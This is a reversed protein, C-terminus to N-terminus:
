KAGKCWPFSSPQVAALMSISTLSAYAWFGPIRLESIVLSSKLNGGAGFVHEQLQVVVVEKSDRFSSLWTLPISCSAPLPKHFNHHLPSSDPFTWVTYNGVTPPCWVATRLKGKKKVSFFSASFKSSFSSGKMAGNPNLTGDSTSSTHTNTWLGKCQPKNKTTRSLETFCM